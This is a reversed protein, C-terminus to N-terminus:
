ATDNFRQYAVPLTVSWMPYASYPQSVLAQPTRLLNGHIGVSAKEVSKGHRRAVGMGRIPHMQQQVHHLTHHFQGIGLGLGQGTANNDPQQGFPRFTTAVKAQGTTPASAVPTARPATPAAPQHPALPLPNSMANPNNPAHAVHHAALGALNAIQAIPQSQPLGTADNYTFPNQLAASQLISAANLGGTFVPSSYAQHQAFRAANQYEQNLQSNILEGAQMKARNGFTTDQLMNLSAYPDTYINAMNKGGDTRDYFNMAAQAAYGAPGAGAKPPEPESYAGYSAPNDLYDSALGGAALFGPALMPVQLSAYAAGANIAQKVLPKAVDGVKYAAKRLGHKNLAKDFQKGFIGQGRVNSRRRRGM